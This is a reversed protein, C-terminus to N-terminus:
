GNKIVESKSKNDLEDETHGSIMIGCRPNEKAVRVDYQKDAVQLRLLITDGEDTYDIIPRRVKLYLTGGIGYIAMPKPLTAEPDPSELFVMLDRLTFCAQSEFNTTTNDM